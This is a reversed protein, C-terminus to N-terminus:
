SPLNGQSAQEAAKLAEAVVLGVATDHERRPVEELAHRAEPTKMAALAQVAALRVSPSEGMSLEHLAAVAAQGGMAGLALVAVEALPDHPEAHREIVARLLPILGVGLAGLVTVACQRERTGPHRSVADLVAEAITRARDPSLPHGAALEQLGKFASVPRPGESLYRLLADLARPGGIRGLALGCCRVVEPNADRAFMAEILAGTVSDDGFRALLEASLQRTVPDVSSLGQALRFPAVGCGEGLKSIIRFLFTQLPSPHGPTDGRSPVGRSALLVEVLPAVVSADGSEILKDAVDRAVAWHPETLLIEIWPRTRSSVQALVRSTLDVPVKAAAERAAQRARRRQWGWATLALDLVLFTVAVSAIVMWATVSM